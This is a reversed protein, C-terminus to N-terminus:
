LLKLVHYLLSFGLLLLAQALLLTEKRDPGVLLLEGHGVREATLSSCTTHPHLPGHQPSPPIGPSPRVGWRIPWM